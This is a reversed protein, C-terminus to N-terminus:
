RQRGSRLNFQYGRFKMLKGPKGVVARLTPQCGRDFGGRRARSFVQQFQAPNAVTVELVDIVGSFLDRRQVRDLTIPIDMEKLSRWLRRLKPFPGSAYFSIAFQQRLQIRKGDEALLWVVVGEQPHEYVDLLWGTLTNEEANLSKM